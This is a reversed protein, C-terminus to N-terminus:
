YQLLLKQASERDIIDENFIAYKYATCKSCLVNENMNSCGNLMLKRFSNFKEGNWIEKLTKERVNGMSIIKEGTCCPQVNGDPNIQLMYFPFSCIDNEELGFGRISKNEEVIIDSYDMYSVLPSVKEITIYDCISGYMDYYLQEEGDRLSCDLIKIYVKTDKRNMYFYKIQDIFKTYDIDIDSTEKYMESDLGQISISLRSLGAAILKDSLDNTLVSGNTIIETADCVNNENIYKIMESIESHLLPEGLGAFRITKIKRNFLRMDDICKKFLKMDMKMEDFNTPRKNVPVSHQCYKCKFNCAYIPFFYIGLPTDLPLSEVLKKRKGGTGNGNNKIAKM